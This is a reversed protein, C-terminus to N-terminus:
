SVGLYTVQDSIQTKVDDHGILTLWIGIGHRQVQLRSLDKLTGDVLRSLRSVKRDFKGLPRKHRVVV